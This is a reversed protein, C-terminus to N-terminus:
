GVPGRVVWRDVANRSAACGTANVLVSVVDDFTAGAALMERYAHGGAFRVRNAAAYGRITALAQSPTM